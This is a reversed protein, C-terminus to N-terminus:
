PKNKKRAKRMRKLRGGQQRKGRERSETESAASEESDDQAFRAHFGQKESQYLADKASYFTCSANRLIVVKRIAMKWPHFRVPELM